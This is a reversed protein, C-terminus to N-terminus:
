RASRSAASGCTPSSRRAADGRPLLRHDPLERAEAPDARRLRDLPLPDARLVVAHVRGRDPHPRNITGAEADDADRDSPASSRDLIPGTSAPSSRAQGPQPSGTGAESVINLLQDCGATFYIRRYFGNGDGASFVSDGNHGLWAAWYLYGEDRGPTGAPEAGNPNHAAM